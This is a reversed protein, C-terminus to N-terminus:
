VRALRSLKITKPAEFALRPRGPTDAVFVFVEPLVEIREGTTVVVPSKYDVWLVVSSPHSSLVELTHEAVKIVTGPDVEVIWAM